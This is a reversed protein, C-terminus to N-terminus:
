HDSTFLTADYTSARVLLRQKDPVLTGTRPILFHEKTSIQKFSDLLENSL